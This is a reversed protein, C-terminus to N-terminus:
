THMQGIGCRNKMEPREQKNVRLMCCSSPMDHYSFPDLSILGTHFDTLAPKEQRANFSTPHPEVINRAAMM